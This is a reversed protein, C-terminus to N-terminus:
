VVYSQLQCATKLYHIVNAESLPNHYVRQNIFLIGKLKNVRRYLPVRVWMLLPLSWSVRTMLLFFWNLTMTGEQKLFTLLLFFKKVKM